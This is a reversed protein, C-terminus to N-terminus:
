LYRRVCGTSSQHEHNSYIPDRIHVNGGYLSCNKETVNGISKIGGLIVLSAVIALLIGIILPLSIGFVTEPLHFGDMLSSTIEHVQTMNGIGFSALMCFLAFLAALIRGLLKCNKRGGLGDRLYYM